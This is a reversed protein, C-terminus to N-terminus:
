LTTHGNIMSHHLQYNFWIPGFIVLYLTATHGLGNLVSKNDISSSLSAVIIIM